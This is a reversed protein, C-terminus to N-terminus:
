LTVNDNVQLTIPSQEFTKFGTLSAAIKYQGPPPAPFRYIGEANSETAFRINTGLNTATLNAKPVVAGTSDRVEGTLQAQFTQASSVTTAASLLLLLVFGRFVSM